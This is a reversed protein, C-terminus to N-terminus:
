AAKEKAKGEIDLVLDQYGQPLDEFDKAQIILDLFKNTENNGLRERVKDWIRGLRRDLKPNM